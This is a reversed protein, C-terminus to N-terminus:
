WRAKTRQLLPHTVIVHWIVAQFAETHPTIANAPAPIKICCTAMRATSGGDPGVIGLVKAGRDRAFQVAATIGTSVEDTGGGVSLVFLTDNAKIDRMWGTFVTSMGEDNARASFEAYNVTHADLHCLKRLDAAFHIANAMSGGLGIVFVRGLTKYLEVTLREVEHPDIALAIEATTKLYDKCFM